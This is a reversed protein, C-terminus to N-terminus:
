LRIFLSIYGSPDFETIIESGLPITVGADLNIGVRKSFNITRGIRPYFAAPEWWFIVGGLLYWKKRDIYRSTAGFHYYIETAIPGWVLSSGWDVPGTQSLGVQINGGYKIKLSILEPYGAGGALEFKHQSSISNCILLMGSILLWFRVRYKKM